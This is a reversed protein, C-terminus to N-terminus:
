KKWENKEYDYKSALGDIPNVQLEIMNRLQIAQNEPKFSDPLPQLIFARMGMYLWCACAFAGLVGAVYLKWEGTPANMESFTQCFSARYLAKKEEITLKSWDGKEKERLARIENNEERWRVAPMPYDEQDSYNLGGNVGFGVVERKGIKFYPDLHAPSASGARVGQFRLASQLLQQCFNRDLRRLAM